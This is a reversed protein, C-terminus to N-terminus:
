RMSEAWERMFNPDSLAEFGFIAIAAITLLLYIGGLIAGIIGCVKAAKANKFSSTTYLNPSLHYKKIDGSSLVWAVIGLVLGLIGYCCCGPISLIGLVLSITANPLSQQQMGSFQDFPSPASQFPAASPAPTVPESPKNEEPTQQEDSM